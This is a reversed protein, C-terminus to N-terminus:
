RTTGRKPDDARGRAWFRWTELRVRERRTENWGEDQLIMGGEAPTMRRLRWYGFVLRALLAGVGVVGALLVFRTLGPPLGDAAGRGRREAAKLPFAATPDVEVTTAFLWVLQGAVAVAAATYFLRAVEGRRVLAAPRRAPPADKRPYKTEAPVALATLGYVRYHSALYVVVAAALVLDTVRFRGDEIEFPNEDAPPLGFPFISFYLLLLLFFIPAAPWRLVLGAAGVLVLMLGGLDSGKQFLVVFVMALAGLGVFVYDRAAPNRFLGRLTAPDTADPEVDAPTTM